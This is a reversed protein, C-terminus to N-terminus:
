VSTSNHGGAGKRRNDVGFGVDITKILMM